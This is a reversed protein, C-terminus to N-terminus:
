RTDTLGASLSAQKIWDPSYRAVNFHFGRDVKIETKSGPFPKNFWLLYNLINTASNAYVNIMSALLSHLFQSVTMNGLDIKNFYYQYYQLLM